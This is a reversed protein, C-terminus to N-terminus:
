ASTQYKCIKYCQILFQGVTQDKKMFNCRACCPVCNGFNYSRTDNNVRDIGGAKPIGCYLCCQKLIQERQDSTIEVLNGNQIASREFPGFTSPQAIFSVSNPTRSEQWERVALVHRVFMDQPLNGRMVNCRYCAACVNEETYPGGADIRDLTSLNGHQPLNGCYSCPLAIVRIYDALSLTHGGSPDKNRLSSANCDAFKLKMCSVFYDLEADDELSSKFFANVLNVLNDHSLTALWDRREGKYSFNEVDTEARQTARVKYREKEKLRYVRDFEPNLDRLDRLSKWKRAAKESLRRKEDEIRKALATNSRAEYERIFRRRKPDPLNQAAEESLPTDPHLENHVVLFDAPLEKKVNGRLDERGYVKLNRERKAKSKQVTRERKVDRSLTFCHADVFKNRLHFPFLDENISFCVCHAQAEASPEDRIAHTAASMCACLDYRHFTKGARFNGVTPRLRFAIETFLEKDTANRGESTLTTLLAHVPANDKTKRGYQLIADFAKRFEIGHQDNTHVYTPEVAHDCPELTKVVQECVSRRGPCSPRACKYSITGTARVFDTKTWTVIEKSNSSSSSM